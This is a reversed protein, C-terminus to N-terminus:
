NVADVSTLTLNGKEDADLIVTNERGYKKDIASACTPSCVDISNGDREAQLWDEPLLAAGIPLVKLEEEKGCNDCKGYVM